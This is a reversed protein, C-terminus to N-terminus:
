NLHATVESIESKLDVYELHNQIRFYYNIDNCNSKKKLLFFLLRKLCDKETDLKGLMEKEM